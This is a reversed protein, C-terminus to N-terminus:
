RNGSDLSPLALLNSHDVPLTPWILSYIKQFRPSRRSIISDTPRDPRGCVCLEVVREAGVGVHRCCSAAM